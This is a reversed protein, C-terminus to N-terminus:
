TDCGIGDGDKDLHTAYGPEGQHIPDAGAARVETCNKYYTDVVPPVYEEVPQAAPAPAPAPVPEAVPATAPAPAFDAPPPPAPQVFPAQPPGPEGPVPAVPEAFPGPIPELAPPLADASEGVPFQAAPQPPPAAERLDPGKEPASIAAVPASNAEEFGGAVAAGALGIGAVVAAGITAAIVRDRTFASRLQGASPFAPSPPASETLETPYDSPAPYPVPPFAPDPKRRFQNSFLSTIERLPQVPASDPTKDRPDDKKFPNRFRDFTGM